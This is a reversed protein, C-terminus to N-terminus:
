TNSVVVNNFMNMIKVVFAGLNIGTDLLISSFLVVMCVGLIILSLLRKKFYTALVHPQKQEQQPQPAGFGGGGFGGGMGMSGMAQQQGGVGGIQIAQTMDDSVTLIKRKQQQPQMGGMGMSGSSGQQDNSLVGRLPPIAWYILDIATQVGMWGVVLAMLFGITSGLLSVIPQAYYSGQQMQDDTVPNYGKFFNSVSSGGDSSGTTAGNVADYGEIGDLEGGEAHVYTNKFMLSAVGVTVSTYLM